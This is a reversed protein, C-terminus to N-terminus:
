HTWAIVYNPKAHVFSVCQTPCENQVHIPQQLYVEFKVHGSELQSQM